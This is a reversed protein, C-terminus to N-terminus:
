EFVRHAEPLNGAHLVLQGISDRVVQIMKEAAEFMGFYSATISGARQRAQPKSNESLLSLLGELHGFHWLVQTSSGFIPM